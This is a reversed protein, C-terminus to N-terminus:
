DPVVMDSLCWFSGRMCIWALSCIVEETQAVSINLQRCLVKRTIYQDLNFQRSFLEWGRAFSKQLTKVMGARLHSLHLVEKGHEPCQGLGELYGGFSNHDDSATAKPLCKM